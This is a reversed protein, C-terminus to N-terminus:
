AEVTFMQKYFAAKLVARAATEVDPAERALRLHKEM